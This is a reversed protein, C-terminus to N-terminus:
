FGGIAKGANSRDGEEQDTAADLAYATSGSALLHVELKGIYM